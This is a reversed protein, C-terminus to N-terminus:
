NRKSLSLIRTEADWGIQVALDKLSSAKLYAVGEHQLFDQPAVRTLDVNLANLKEVPVYAANHIIVGPSETPRDGIALDITEVRTECCDLTVTRTEADWAVPINLDQLNSVKFYSQGARDIRDAAALDAMPLGLQEAQALALYAHGDVIMGQHNYVIGSAQVNIASTAPAAVASPQEVPAGAPVPRMPQSRQWAAFAGILGALAIGGLGVALVPPSTLQRQRSGDARRGPSTATAPRDQDYNPGYWKCTGLHQTLTVADPHYIKQQPLHIKQGQLHGYDAELLSPALLVTLKQPHIAILKLEYLTKLDSRLVLGQSPHEPILRNDSVIFATELLPAITCGTIACQQQYVELLKRQLSYQVRRGMAAQISQVVQDSLSHGAQAPGAIDRRIPDVRPAAVGPTTPNSAQPSPFDSPDLGLEAGIGTARLDSTEVNETDHGLDAKSRDSAGEGLAQDAGFPTEDTLSALDSAAAALQDFALPNGEESLLTARGEEGEEPPVFPFEAAAWDEVALSDDLAHDDLALDDSAHISADIALLDAEFAWYGANADPNLDALTGARRSGNATYSDAAYGAAAAVLPDTSIDEAATDEPDSAEDPAGAYLTDAYALDEPSTVSFATAAYDDSSAGAWDTLPPEVFDQYFTEDPARPAETAKAFSTPKSTSWLRDAVSEALITDELNLSDLDIDHLDVESLNAGKLNAGGLNVNKFIAGSFDVGSLNAGALSCGTLDSKRLNAGSLNAGSMVAGALKAGALKARVLDAAILNVNTLTAASFDVHNLTAGALNAGTLNAKNLLAEELNILPLRAHSLDCEKLDVNNFRRRGDAYERLLVDVEIAQFDDQFSSFNFDSSETSM